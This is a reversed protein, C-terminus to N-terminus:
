VSDGVNGSDGRVWGPPIWHGEETQTWGEALRKSTERVGFAELRKELLEISEDFTMRQDLEARVQKEIEKREHALLRKRSFGPRPGYKKRNAGQLLLRLVSDSRKLRTGVVKGYQIVEEEVGAVGREWAAIEVPMAAMQLALECHRAFEADKAQHNYATQHSVGVKRCADLLCGYKALAKLFAAKRRGNFADHRERAVDSSGGSDEEKWPTVDNRREVARRVNEDNNAM